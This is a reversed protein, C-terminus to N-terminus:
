GCVQLNAVYQFSNPDSCDYLFAIVDCEAELKKKDVLVEHDRGNSPM